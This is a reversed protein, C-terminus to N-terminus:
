LSPLSMGTGIDQLIKQSYRDGLLFFGALHFRFNVAAGEALAGISHLLMACRAEM